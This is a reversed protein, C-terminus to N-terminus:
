HALPNEAGKSSAERVSEQSSDVLSRLAHALWEDLLSTSPQEEITDHLEKSAEGPFRTDLVMTLYKKAADLNTQDQAERIWRNVVMSETM